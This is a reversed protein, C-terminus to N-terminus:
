ADEKEAAPTKKVALKKARQPSASLVKISLENWVVEDGEIPVRGLQQSVLGGLSTVGSNPDWSIEMQRCIKRLEATAQVHISGDPQRNLKEPPADSEDIIEGVIEELVDEITVIGRFGGYEDVVLAMHSYSEQFDRLLENLAKSGPVRIPERVLANWDIDGEPNEHLQFLIEKALVIGVVEDLEGTPSFPFRSHRTRNLAILVEDRTMEGSFFTVMPRPVMVQHATLDGLHTAGVIIRATRRGVAGESSGMSALLRIEEISTIPDQEGRRLAKSIVESVAVLPRLLISLGQIGYAVPAALTRAKTVGLTKPIIETFLLVAITFIITFIWLTDEDFVKGYSAGAVSAGITHAVTNAILIAAIPVDINDKFGKLIRGSAKGERALAEVHSYRLSLLVSEFISCLFSVVLATSVSLIFVFM